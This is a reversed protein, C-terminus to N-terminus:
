DCVKNIKNVPKTGDLFMIQDCHHNIFDADHSILILHKNLLIGNFLRSLILKQKHGMGFTPEDFILLDYECHALIIMLAMRLTSWSLDLGSINKINLWDINYELFSDLCFQFNKQLLKGQDIFEELLANLNGAGLIREPFQDLYATSPEQGDIELTLKGSDAKLLGVILKALTSKGSGNQGYLGLCGCKHLNINIYNIGPLNQNYSFAYNKLAFHMRGPKTKFNYDISYEKNFIEAINFKDLIWFNKGYEADKKESTFWLIICNNKQVRHRMLNVMEAKKGENLFSLGDDILVLRARTSLATVLNLIEKEGGSLTSPHREWDNVFPLFKQMERFSKQLIDTEIEQCELSFVLENRISHTIIQTEPNQFVVQKNNPIRKVNLDLDIKQASNIGALKRFILSKGSGSEGYIVHLGPKFNLNSNVQFESSFIKFSLDEIM